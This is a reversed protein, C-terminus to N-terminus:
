YQRAPLRIIMGDMAETLPIQCALRSDPGVDYAFELTARELEHMAPVSASSAEDDLYVHCTGCACFGGCDGEIGPVKNIVAAEMLSLGAMASVPHRTGDQQVFVVTPM